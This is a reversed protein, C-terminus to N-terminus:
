GALELVRLASGPALTVGAGGHGYCHIIKPYAPDRELRIRGRRFPRLGAHIRQSWAPDEPRLDPLIRQNARILLHALQPDPQEHDCATDETGGLVTDGQRPYVYFGDASISWDMAPQPDALVVHGRIPYLDPDQTLGKAGLGTANVVVDAPLDQLEQLSILHRRHFVAGLAQLESQLRPLFVPMDIFFTEYRWGFRYGGPVHPFEHRVFDRMVDRYWPDEKPASMAEWHQHKRVGVRFREDRAFEEWGHWSNWLLAVTEEHEAVKSPKFSAAAKMSTVDALDRDSIVEVRWGRHLATWATMLGIVGGGAVAMVRPEAM